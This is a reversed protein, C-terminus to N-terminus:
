GFAIVSFAPYGLLITYALAMVAAPLSMKESRANAQAEDETLLQARLSAARARLTSAIAAGDVAATAVIDAVDGLESVGTRAGLSRLGDWPQGGAVRADILAARIRQFAWGDGVDAARELAQTPGESADRRLSVLDLYSCVARRLEERAVRAQDALVVNPLLWGAAALGLGVAAPIVVPFSIGALGAAVAIVVPFVFAGGLASLVKRTLFGEPSWGILELEATPLAVPGAALRAVVGRGAPGAVRIWSDPDPERSIGERRRTAGSLNDLADSLQPVPASWARVALALGLGLAAGSLALLPWGGIM